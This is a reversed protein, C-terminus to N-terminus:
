ALVKLFWHTSCGSWPLLFMAGDLLMDLWKDLPIESSRYVLAQWVGGMRTVKSHTNRTTQSNTEVNYTCHTLVSSKAKLKNTEPDVPNSDPASHIVTRLVQLMIDGSSNPHLSRMPTYHVKYSPFIHIITSLPKVTTPKNCFFGLDGLNKVQSHKHTKRYSKM